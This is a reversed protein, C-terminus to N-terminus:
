CVFRVGNMEKWEVIASCTCAARSSMTAGRRSQNSRPMKECPSIWAITERHRSDSYANRRRAARLASKKLYMSDEDNPVFAAARM